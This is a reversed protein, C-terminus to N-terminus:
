GEVFITRHGRAVLENNVSVLMGLTLQGAQSPPAAGKKGVTKFTGDVLSKAILDLGRLLNDRIALLTEDSAREVGDDDAPPRRRVTRGEAV